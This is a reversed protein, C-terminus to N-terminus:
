INQLVYVDICFFVESGVCSIQGLTYVFRFILKKQNM